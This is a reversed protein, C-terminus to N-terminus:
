RQMRMLSANKKICMLFGKFPLINEVSINSDTITPILLQVFVGLNALVTATGDTTVNFTILENVDVVTCLPPTLVLLLPDSM